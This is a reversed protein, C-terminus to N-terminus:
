CLRYIRQGSVTWDGTAQVRAPFDNDDSAYEVLLLGARSRRLVVVGPLAEVRTAASAAESKEGNFLLVYKTRSAM